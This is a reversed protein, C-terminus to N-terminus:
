CATRRGWAMVDELTVGQAVHHAGLRLQFGMCDQLWSEALAAKIEEDKNGDCTCQQLEESPRLEAQMPLTQLHYLSLAM